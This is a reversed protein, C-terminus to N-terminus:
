PKWFTTYKCNTSARRIWPFSTLLVYWLFAWLASALGFGALDGGTIHLQKCVDGSHVSNLAITFALVFNLACLVAITMWWSGKGNYRPSDILHYQILYAFATLALMMCGVYTYWPTGVYGSCTVDFGRLHDGLDTGYFPLLGGFEYMSSFFDNM